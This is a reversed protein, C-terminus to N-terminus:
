PDALNPCVGCARNGLYAQAGHQAVGDLPHGIALRKQYLGHRRRAAIWRGLGFRGITGDNLFAVALASGNARIFIQQLVRVIFVQKVIVSRGLQHQHLISHCRWNALGSNKRAYIGRRVALVQQYAANM